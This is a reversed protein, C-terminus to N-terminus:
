ELETQGMRKSILPDLSPLLEVCSGYQVSNFVEDDIETSKEMNVLITFGRGMKTKGMLEHLNIVEGSTGVVLVTDLATVRKLVSYMDKYRPAPEGFFVANHKLAKLSNCKPCRKDVPWVGSPNLTVTGCAHCKMEQISGHLHVVDACGAQECLNDINQTMVVVRETGWKQQWAALQQHAANPHKDLYVPARSNYFDFVEERNSKWTHWNALRDADFNKWVPDTGTRFTAIGSPASLGAGSFVILRPPPLVKVKPM